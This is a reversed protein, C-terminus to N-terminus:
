HASELRVIKGDVDTIRVLQGPRILRGTAAGAHYAVSEVGPQLSYSHGAVTFTEPEHGNGFVFHEVKGQVITYSGNALRSALGQYELFRIAANLIGGAAFFATAAITVFIAHRRSLQRRVGLGLFGLLLVISPILLLKWDLYTGPKYATLLDFVRQYHTSDM